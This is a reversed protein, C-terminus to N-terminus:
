DDPSYKMMEKGFETLVYYFHGDEGVLQDIVGLDMMEKVDKSHDEFANLPSADVIFSQVNYVMRKNEPPLKEIAKMAENESSYVGITELSLYDGSDIIVELIYLLGDDRAM